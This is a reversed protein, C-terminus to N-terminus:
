SNRYKPDGTIRTLLAYVPPAMFLADCWSWRKSRNKAKIHYNPRRRSRLSRIPRQLVSCQRTALAPLADPLGARCLHRRRPVAATGYVLRQPTGIGLVFEECPKYSVSKAWVVMGRYLRRQAWHQDSRRDGEFPLPRLQRDAMASRPQRDAHRTERSRRQRAPLIAATLLLFTILRKYM